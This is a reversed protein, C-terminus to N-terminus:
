LREVWRPDRKAVFAAIGEQGEGRLAEAFVNAAYGVFGNRPENAARLLLLKTSANAEPGCRNIQALTAFLMDEVAGAGGCVHDALGIRMAEEPGFRSGTL